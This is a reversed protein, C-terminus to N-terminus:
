FGCIVSKRLNKKFSFLLLVPLIQDAYFGPFDVASSVLKLEENAPQTVSSRSEARGLVRPLAGQLSLVLRFNRPATIDIEPSRVRRAHGNRRRAAINQSFFLEGHRPAMPGLRGPSQVRSPHARGQEKGSRDM